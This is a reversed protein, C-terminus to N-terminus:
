SWDVLKYKQQLQFIVEPDTSISTWFWMCYKNLLFLSIFHVQVFSNNGIRLVRGNAVAMSQAFPLSDDSTYIVGNRIILDAVLPLTSQPLKKWTLFDAFGLFPKHIWEYTCASLSLSLSLTCTPHLLPLSATLIALLLSISASIVIHINM